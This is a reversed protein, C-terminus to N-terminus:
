PGDREIHNNLNGSQDTYLQLAQNVDMAFDRLNGPDAVQEGLRNETEEASLDPYLYDDLEDILGRQWGYECEGNEAVTGATHLLLQVYSMTSIESAVIKRMRPRFGGGRGSELVDVIPDNASNVLVKPDSRSGGLVHVLREDYEFDDDSFDQYMSPFGEGTSEEEGIRVLWEQGNSVHMGSKPAYPLGVDCDETRVLRPELAISDYVDNWDFTCSFEYSRVEETGIPALPGDAVIKPVRRQTDLTDIKLMLRVPPADYEEDPLVRKLTSEELTLTGEVTLSDWTGYGTVDIENDAVEPTGPEDGNISFQDPSLEIAEDAYHYPQGANSTTSQKAPSM